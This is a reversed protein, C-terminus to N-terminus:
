ADLAANYGEFTINDAIQRAQQEVELSRVTWCCIMAGQGKIEAVRRRDLDDVEHSIFCSGTRDYDPIERLHDCTAKSLPWEDYRYASTVIGRPVDPLLDRMMAVSNPNFSMVAVPGAYGKLAAATAQELPGLNTGMAGDQDKLEILLPVQGAVLQLVEPLDPIGEDGGRLPVAKLDAASRLRVAGSDHTLRDLAYDHFVMAAGDASLQVDIEIGYGAEIAARIAARSNEPRGQAVDHLARHALPLDVFGRPLTM